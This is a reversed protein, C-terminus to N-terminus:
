YVNIDQYSSVHSNRVNLTPGFDPKPASQKSDSRNPVKFDGSKKEHNTPTQTKSYNNSTASRNNISSKRSHSNAPSKSYSKRSKNSKSSHRSTNSAPRKSKKSTASHTRKETKSEAPETAVRGLSANQYQIMQQYQNTNVQIDKAQLFTKLHNNQALLADKDNKLAALSAEM